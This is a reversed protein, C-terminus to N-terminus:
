AECSRCRHLVSGTSRSNWPRSCSSQRVAVLVADLGEVEGVAEAVVQGRGRDVEGPERAGVPDRQLGVVACARARCRGGCCRSCASAARPCAAPSASTGRPGCSPCAVEAEAVDVAAVVGRDEVVLVRVPERVPEHDVGAADARKFAGCAPAIPSPQPSQYAFSKRTPAPKATSVAADPSISMPSYMSRTACKIRLWASSQGTPAEARGTGAGGTGGARAAERVAVEALDVALGLHVAVALDPGLRQPVQPTRDARRVRARSTVSPMRRDGGSGDKRSMRLAIRCASTTRPRPRRSWIQATKAARPMPKKADVISPASALGRSSKESGGAGPPGRPRISPCTVSM